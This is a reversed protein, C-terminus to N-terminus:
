PTLTSRCRLGRPLAVQVLCVPHEAPLVLGVELTLGGAAPERRLQRPASGEAPPRRERYRRIGEAPQQELEAARRRRRRRLHTASLARYMWRMWGTRGLRVFVAVDFTTELAGGQAARDLSHTAGRGALGDVVEEGDEGRYAPWLCHPTTKDPTVFKRPPVPPPCALCTSPKEPVRSGCLWAM